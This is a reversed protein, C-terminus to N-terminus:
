DAVAAAAVAAVVVAVVDVDAADDAAEGGQAGAEAVGGAAELLLEDGLRAGEALEAGADVGVGAVERLEVADGGVVVGQALEQAGITVGGLGAILLEGGLLGGEVDGELRSPGGPLLLLGLVALAELLGFLGPSRARL